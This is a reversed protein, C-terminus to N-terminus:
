LIHKIAPVKSIAISKSTTQSGRRIKSDNSQHQFTYTSYYCKNTEKSSMYVMYLSLCKALPDTRIHIVSNRGYTQNWQRVATLITRTYQQLIRLYQRAWQMRNVKSLISICSGHCMAWPQHVSMHLHFFFVAYFTLYSSIRAFHPQKNTYSVIVAM